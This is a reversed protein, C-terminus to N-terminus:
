QRWKERNTIQQIFQGKISGMGYTWLTIWCAIPHFLWAPDPKRLYGRLAQALLPLGTLSFLIFKFLNRGSRDKWPYKRLGRKEFFIFDEIRRRQKRMFTSIDGSFTHIIGTKVKAIKNNNAGYKDILECLIDIDFLYNGIDIQLLVERRMMFGNAGITPIHNKCLTVEIYCGKDEQKVDLGTWKGTLLNYRDYNGLFLCLPDNMGILACYRTIYSDERRWTYEIPETGVIAPDAFPIIMTNFWDKTPLINDSDILAILEATASKVGLAKGAEGTKLTNELFMFNNFRNCYSKVTKITDDTSGGDAIILEILGPPYDQEAISNLCNRIVSGSNYTPIIVSISPLQNIQTEKYAEM